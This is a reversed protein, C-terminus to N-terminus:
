FLTRKKGNSCTYRNKRFGTPGPVDECVSCKMDVIMQRAVEKNGRFDAMKSTKKIPFKSFNVILM